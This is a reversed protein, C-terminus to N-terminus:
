IDREVMAIKYAIKCCRKWGMECCYDKSLEGYYSWCCLIDDEEIEEGSWKFPCYKCYINFDDSKSKRKSYVCAFCKSSNMAECILMAKNVWGYSIAQRYMEDLVQKKYSEVHLHMEKDRAFCQAIKIWLERHLNILRMETLKDGM